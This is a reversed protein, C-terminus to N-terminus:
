REVARIIRRNPRGWSARIIIQICNTQTGVIFLQVVIYAYGQKFQLKILARGSGQLICNQKVGVVGFGVCIQTERQLRLAFFFLGARSQLAGEREIRFQRRCLFRQM